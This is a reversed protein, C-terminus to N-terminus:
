QAVPRGTPAPRTARDGREVPIVASTDLQLSSECFKLGPPLTVKCAPQEDLCTPRPVCGSARDEQSPIYYIKNVSRSSAQTFLSQVGQVAGLAVVLVTVAVILLITGVVLSPPSFRKARKAM